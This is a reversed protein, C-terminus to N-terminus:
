GQGGDRFFARMCKNCLRAMSGELFTNVKGCRPCAVTVEPFAVEEKPIETTKQIM